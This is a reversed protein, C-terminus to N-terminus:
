PMTGKAASESPPYLGPAAREPPVPGVPTLRGNVTDTALYVQVGPYTAQIEYM